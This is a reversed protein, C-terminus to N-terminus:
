CIPSSCFIVSFLKSRKKFFFFQGLQNLIQKERELRHDIYFQIRERGNEIMDGHGPYIPIGDPILQKLQNLSNM